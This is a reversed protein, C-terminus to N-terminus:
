FSSTVLSSFCGIAALVHSLTLLFFVQPSADVCFGVFDFCRFVRFVLFYAYCSPRFFILAWTRCPVFFSAPFSFQRDELQRVGDDMSGKTRRRGRRSHSVDDGDIGSGHKM